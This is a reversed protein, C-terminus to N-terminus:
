SSINGKQDKGKSNVKLFAPTKERKLITQFQEELLIAKMKQNRQRWATRMAANKDKITSSHMIETIELAYEAKIINYSKEQTPMLALSPSNTDATQAMLSLGTLSFCFIVLCITVKM